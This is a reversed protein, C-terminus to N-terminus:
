TMTGANMAKANPQAGSMQVFLEHFRLDETLEPHFTTALMNSQRVAAASGDPLTAMVEVSEGMAVIKPARIFVGRMSDPGLSPVDLDVEFSDVQRGFANRSVDIDLLQLVDIDPDDCHSALLIAGACTGWIPMGEAARDTVPKRLEWRRLLRNLTTSEGGPIVLADVSHLDVPLRVERSSVGLKQLSVSHEEFDGQLALVGITLPM